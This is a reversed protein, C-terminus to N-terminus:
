IVAATPILSIVAWVQAMNSTARLNRIPNTAAAIIEAMLSLIIEERVIVGAKPNPTLAQSAEFVRTRVRCAQVLSDAKAAPSLVCMPDRAAIMQNLVASNPTTLRVMVIPLSSATRIPETTPTLSIDARVQVMKSIAGLNPTPIIAEAIIAAMLVLTTERRVAIGAKPNSMLAGGILVVVATRQDEASAKRADLGTILVM